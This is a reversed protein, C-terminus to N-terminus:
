GDCNIGVWISILRDLNVATCHTELYLQSDSVTKHHKTNTKRLLHGTWVGEEKPDTPSLNKALEKGCNELLRGCLAKHLVLNNGTM